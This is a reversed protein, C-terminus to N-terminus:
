AKISKMELKMFVTQKENIHKEEHVYKWSTPYM